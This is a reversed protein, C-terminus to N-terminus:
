PFELGGFFPESMEASIHEAYVVAHYVRTGRAFWVAQAQVPRGDPRLGQASLRRPELAAGAGKLAWPTSASATAQMTGLLNAQWQVQVALAQGAGALDTVSVAYLAAGAECGLMQVELERGALSQRRSGQDPKCPLMAKLEGGAPRVERWNLTPSCAALLLPLGLLLFSRHM